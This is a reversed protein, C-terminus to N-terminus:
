HRPGLAEGTMPVFRVPLLSERRFGQETRTVRVLEQNGSGIPIVLRGGPGLQDLLPAPIEEPAATVLIVAFPAAEPWGKFGDGTKVRVDGHGTEALARRAREALDPLIEISYVEAGVEDLVAAQYGSGTGIELVRDGPAVRAAETMFAVIYPQSITQGEGILLPRDEYAQARVAEPVFRERPVRRMADLVRPDAVGRREIQEHVMALRLPSYPDRGTDEPGTMAAGCGGVTAAVGMGALLRLLFERM